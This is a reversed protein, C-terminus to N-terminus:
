YRKKTKKMIDKDKKNKAYYEEDNTEIKKYLEM